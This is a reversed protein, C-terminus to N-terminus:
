DSARERLLRRLGDEDLIAVGLGRAKDLKLGPDAGAVLYGTKKSVSASVTAGLLELEQKVEGRPRSLTGTLVFSLGELPRQVVPTLPEWHVGAAILQDIVQLNHPQRFFAVVHAAVVPGVDAVPQLRQEDAARLDRLNGFHAALARATAEGVERIGLAFLFRPLTTRKSRELSTLLNAASKKGMRELGALTEADQRYLDAPSSVLEKDVLQDVLKDGLGEIDMARRAAFHKLAERRQAPCFLGGSCRAAVEGAARVVESGCEPCHSPM